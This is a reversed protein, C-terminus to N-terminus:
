AILTHHQAYSNALMDDLESDDETESAALLSLFDASAAALKFLGGADHNDGIHKGHQGSVHGDQASTYSEDNGSVAEDAIWSEDASDQDHESAPTGEHHVGAPSQHQMGNGGWGDCQGQVADLQLEDGQGSAVGAELVAARIRHGM